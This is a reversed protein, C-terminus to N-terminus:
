VGIKLVLVDVGVVLDIKPKVVPVVAVDIGLEGTAVVIGLTTVVGLVVAVDDANLKIAAEDFSSGM